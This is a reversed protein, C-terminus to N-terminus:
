GDGCGVRGAGGELRGLGQRQKGLTNDRGLSSDLTFVPEGVAVDVHTAMLVSRWERQDVCQSERAVCPKQRSEHGHEVVVKDELVFFLGDVCPSGIHSAHSQATREVDVNGALQAADHRIGIVQAPAIFVSPVGTGDDPCAHALAVDGGSGHLQAVQSDGNGVTSEEVGGMDVLRSGLTWQGLPEQALAAGHHKGIGIRRDDLTHSLCHLFAGAGAELGGVGDATLCTSGLVATGVVRGENAKGRHVVRFYGNGDVDLMTAEAGVHSCRDSTEDDLRIDLAM